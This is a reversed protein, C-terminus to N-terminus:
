VGVTSANMNYCTFYINCNNTKVTEEDSSADSNTLANLEISELTVVREKRACCIYEAMIAATTLILGLVAAIVCIWYKQTAGRQTRPNRKRRHKRLVRQPSRHHKRPRPSTWPDYFTFMKNFLDYKCTLLFKCFLQTNNRLDVLEFSKLNKIDESAVMVIKNYALNM